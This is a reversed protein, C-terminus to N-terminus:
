DPITTLRPRWIALAVNATAVALLVWLTSREAGYSGTIKAPELQGALASASRKAEEQLPGLIYVLGGEFMLVGTALKAWAWGANHFAPNMAIALLGAILTLGLAPFFIWGAIEAMARHILAYGALSQPPPAVRM